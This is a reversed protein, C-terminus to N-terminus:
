GTYTNIDYVKVGSISNIGSSTNFAANYTKTNVGNTYKYPIYVYKTKSANTNHFCNLFTTINESEIIINGILNTCYRFTSSM